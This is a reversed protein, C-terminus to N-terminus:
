SCAHKPSSAGSRERSTSTPASVSRSPVAGQYHLDSTTNGPEECVLTCDCALNRVAHRQGPLRRPGRIISTRVSAMQFVEVHRVSGEGGRVQRREAAQVLEPELGRPLAQLGLTSDQGTSHGLRIPPASPAAALAERSVGNNPPQGVLRQPPAGGRQLDRDAAVSAGAANVHPTLVGATRRLRARLEGVASHGPRQLGQRDAVQADSPDGLGRRRASCRWRRRGPRLCALGSRRRKSPTLAMPTSSCTHRWVRRPSLYTVTIMSRVGIRSPVPGARSSSM